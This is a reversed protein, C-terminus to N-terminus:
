HSTNITYTFKVMLARNQSRPRVPLHDFRGTNLNENYVIYLDNGERPNYRLRINSIVMNADNSFQVFSSASFETNLYYEIRVRTIHTTFAEDRDPFSIRNVEYYPQLNLHRSFTLVSSLSGSLRYGDFFQGGEVAAQGSYLDSEPTNFSVGANMFRYRGSPVAIDEFLSFPQRIDEFNYSAEIELRSGTKWNTGWHPGISITELYGELNQFFVNGGFQIQHNQFRSIEDSFWGYNINGGYRTYNLRPLFGMGPNFDPGNRSFGINYGFGTIRRTQWDFRFRTADLNTISQNGETEFSHGYNLTLYDDGFLHFTGDLGHAYNYAGDENIRNTFIAGVFSNPNIIRRKLRLTGFNESPIGQQRATQMNLFGLDWDGISGTLRAGGLIRVQEGQHIGIRRSYFLRNPGGMSFDFLESREQFFKRKEPFFLSFRSLNIQEDDAEVQAFDTNLTLDLTLNGTLGYRVDLGIERTSDDQRIYDTANESLQHGQGFGGLIYPTIHLPRSFELNEFVVPHTQSPKYHGQFGWHNPFSPFINSENKRAIWRMVTMGMRVEGNREQFRLSSLPIRMEVFWGQENRITEVDWFTDWDWNFADGGQADNSIRFDSRAGTPSVFFAVGTENNNFTDLVIGFFDSSLGQFNRQYTTAQIRDPESDYLRAGVYLYENDYGIRIDSRESPERGSEPYYTTMPLPDIFQWAEEDPMGDFNVPGSLKQVSIPSQSLVQVPFAMLLILM